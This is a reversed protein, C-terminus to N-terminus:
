CGQMAVATTGSVAEDAALRYYKRTGTGEIVGSAVTDGFETMQLSGDVAAINDCAVDIDLIAQDILADIAATKIVEADVLGDIVGIETDLTTITGVLTTGTDLLISDVIGDLTTGTDVLVSDATTQLTSVATSSLKLRDKQASTDLAVRNDGVKYAGYFNVNAAPVTATVAIQLRQSVTDDLGDAKMQALLTAAISKHTKATISGLSYEGTAPFSNGLSDFATATLDGTQTGENGVWLLQSVGPGYPVAYFSTSAGNMTFGGLANTKSYSSADSSGSTYDIKWTSSVTQVPIVAKNNSTLVVDIGTEGADADIMTLLGDTISSGTDVFDTDGLVNSTSGTLALQVGATAADLDLFGFSGTLSVTSKTETAEQGVQATADGTQLAGSATLNAAAITATLGDTKNTETYALVASDTVAAGTFKKRAANVDVIGNYATTAAIAMQNVASGVLLPLTPGADVVAGDRLVSANIKVTGAASLPAFTMIPSYIIGGVTTDATSGASGYSVATVSYTISSQGAVASVGDRSFGITDVVASGEGKLIYQLTSPATAGTAFPQTYTFKVKDGAALEGALTIGANTATMTTAGYLGQVTHIPAIATTPDTISTVASFGTYSPDLSVTLAGAQSAAALIGAALLTKKFMIIDKILKM